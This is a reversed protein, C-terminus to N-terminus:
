TVPVEDEEDGRARVTARTVVRSVPAWERRVTVCPQSGIDPIEEVQGLVALADTEDARLDLGVLRGRDDAVELLPCSFVSALTADGSLKRPAAESDGSPLVKTVTTCV